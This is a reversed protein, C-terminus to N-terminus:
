ALAMPGGIFTADCAEEANAYDLAAAVRRQDIGELRAETCLQTLADIQGLGFFLPCAEGTM